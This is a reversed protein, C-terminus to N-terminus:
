RIEAELSRNKLELDSTQHSRNAGLMSSPLDVNLIQSSSSM